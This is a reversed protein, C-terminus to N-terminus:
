LTSPTDLLDAERLKAYLQEGIQAADEPPIDLGLKDSFVASVVRAADSASRIEAIRRAIAGSEINYENPPAGNKLFGYLDWADIVSSVAREVADTNPPTDMSGLTSLQAV